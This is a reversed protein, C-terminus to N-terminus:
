NGLAPSLGATRTQGSCMVAARGAAQPWSMWPLSQAPSHPRPVGDVGRCPERGQKGEELMPLHQSWLPCQGSRPAGFGPELYFSVPHVKAEAEMQINEEKAMTVM